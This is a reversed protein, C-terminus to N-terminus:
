KLFTQQLTQNIFKFCGMERFIIWHKIRHKTKATKCISPFTDPKIWLNVIYALHTAIAPAGTSPSVTSM